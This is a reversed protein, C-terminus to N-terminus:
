IFRGELDLAPNPIFPSIGTLMVRSYWMKGRADASTDLFPLLMPDWQCFFPCQGVRLVEWPSNRVCDWVTIPGLFSLLFEVPVWQLESSESIIRREKLVSPDRSLYHM